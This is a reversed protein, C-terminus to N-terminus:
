DETPVDGRPGEVMPHRLLFARALHQCHRSGPSGLWWLKPSQPHSVPKILPTQSIPPPNRMFLYVGERPHPLLSHSRVRNTGEDWSTTLFPRASGRGKKVAREGHSRQVRLSGQAKRWSHFRGSARLLLLHQCQAM